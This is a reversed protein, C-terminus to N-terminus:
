TVYQERAYYCTTEKDTFANLNGGVGDMTEAIERADPAANGQVAHARGSALDRPARAIGGGLRRRGLHRDVGITRVADGGDPGAHRESLTTKQYVLVGGAEFARARGNTTGSSAPTGADARARLSATSEGRRVTISFVTRSTPKALDGSVIVGKGVDIPVSAWLDIEEVAPAAAFARSSSRSTSRDVFRRADAAPSVERGLHSNRRDPPRRVRQGFGSQGAGALAHSLDREGIESAIDERNGVRASDADLDAM